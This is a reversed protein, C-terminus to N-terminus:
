RIGHLFRALRHTFRAVVIDDELRDGLAHACALDVGVAALDAFPERVEILLRTDFRGLGADAQRGEFFEPLGADGLGGACLLRRYHESRKAGIGHRM